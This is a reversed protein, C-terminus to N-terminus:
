SGSKATLGNLAGTAQRILADLWVRAADVGAVYATMTDASGPIQEAIQPAMVYAVTALFAVALMLAFGSGFGSRKKPGGILDPLENVERTRRAEAASPSLTSNIEEIDPLLDRRAAGRPPTTQEGKMAAVRADADSPQVPPAPAVYPAAPAASVPAPLGLEDQMELTAADARRAIAEREAEERLVALVSDDLRSSPPPPLDSLADDHPSQPMPHDSQDDDTLDAHADHADPDVHWDPEHVDPQQTAPHFDDARLADAKADGLAGDQVAVTEPVTKAVTEPVTEAVRGQVNPVMDDDYDDAATAALDPQPEAAQFWAHGCNSCQVDRGNPPVASADVEYQADCNPCILRM